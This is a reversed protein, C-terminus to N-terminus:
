SVDGVDTVECVGGVCALEQSATTNDYNEVFTSWDTGQPMEALLKSYGAATLDEYPAQQYIHDDKPLFSIGSVTNFNKWLWAGIELFEDPKYSITVSPKHECWHDQYAKWLELHDIAKIDTVSGEPAQVPFSFVKVSSNTVDVENPFGQEDMWIALPDKSDARVRRV